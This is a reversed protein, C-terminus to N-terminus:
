NVRVSKVKLKNQESSSDPFGQLYVNYSKTSDFQLNGLPFTKVSNGSDVFAFVQNIGIHVLNNFLYSGPTPNNGVFVEPGINVTDRVVVHFTDITYDNKYVLRLGLSLDPSFNIYRISTLTDRRVPPNDQLIILSVTTPNLTDFFFVSYHTGQQFAANGKVNVSSDSALFINMESIRSTTTNYPNGTTDGTHQGFPIPTTFLPKQNFTMNLDGVGYAVHFLAVFSNNANINATKNCSFLSLAMLQLSLGRIRRFISIPMYKKLIM